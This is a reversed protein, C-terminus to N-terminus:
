ADILLRTRGEKRGGDCERVHQASGCEVTREVGSRAGELIESCDEDVEGAYVRRQKAYVAGDLIAM